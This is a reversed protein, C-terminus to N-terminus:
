RDNARKVPLSSASDFPMAVARDLAARRRFYDAIAQFYRDKLEVFSREAEVLTSAPILGTKYAPRAAEVNAQADQLIKTQYLRVTEAGERVEQYARDIQFNAQDTLKALEARRQTLRAEAEDM